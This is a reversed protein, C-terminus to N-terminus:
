QSTFQSFYKKKFRFKLLGFKFVIFSVELLIREEERKSFAVMKKVIMPKKGGGPDVEM